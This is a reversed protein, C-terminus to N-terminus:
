FGDLQIESLRNLFLVTVAVVWLLSGSFISYMLVVLVSQISDHKNSEQQIFSQRM